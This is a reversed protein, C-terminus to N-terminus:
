LVDKARPFSGLVTLQLCHQRAADLAKQMIPESEHGLLDVFFYYEWNMRQSPREALRTMNLGHESFIALVRNLAGPKHETTFMISTKDDGTPRPSQKGLIFFRTTNNPNDEINTFLAPVDYMQGALMTGVAAAGPESAAIKVAESTSVTQVQEAHPLQAALWRRCQGLPQNHSYVKKVQSL